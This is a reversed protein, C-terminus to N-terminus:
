FTKINYIKMKRKKEKSHDLPFYVRLPTLFWQYVSAIIDGAYLNGWDPDQESPLHMAHDENEPFFHIPRLIFHDINNTEYLKGRLPGNVVLGGGAIVEFLMGQCPDRKGNRFDSVPTLKMVEPDIMFDWDDLPEDIDIVDDERVQFAAEAKWPWRGSVDRMSGDDQLNGQMVSELPHWVFGRSIGPRLRIGNGIRLLINRYDQPLRVGLNAEADSVEVETLTPGFQCEVHPDYNPGM